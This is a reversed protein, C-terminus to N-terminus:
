PNARGWYTIVDFGQQTINEVYEIPADARREGTFVKVYGAGGSHVFYTFQAADIRTMQVNNRSAWYYKRGRAVIVCENKKAADGDLKERQEQDASAYLRVSPTGRFM